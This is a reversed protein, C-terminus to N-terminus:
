LRHVDARVTLKIAEANSKVWEELTKADILKKKEAYNDADINNRYIAWLGTLRPQELEETVVQFTWKDVSAIGSGRRPQRFSASGFYVEGMKDQLQVYVTLTGWMEVRDQRTLITIKEIHQGASDRESKISMDNIAIRPKSVANAVNITAVFLGISIIIRSLSRHM